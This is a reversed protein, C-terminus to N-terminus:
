QSGSECRGSSPFKKMKPPLIVNGPSDPHKVNRKQGRHLEVAEHFVDCRLHNCWLPCAGEERAERQDVKGSGGIPCHDYPVAECQLMSANRVLGGEARAQLLAHLLVM